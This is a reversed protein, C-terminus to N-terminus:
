IKKIKIKQTRNHVPILSAHIHTYRDCTHRTGVSNHAAVHTSPVSGRDKPLLALARLGV